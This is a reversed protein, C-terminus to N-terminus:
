DGTQVAPRLVKRTGRLGRWWELVASMYTYVV